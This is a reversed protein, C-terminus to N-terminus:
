ITLTKKLDLASINKNPNDELKNILTVLKEISTIFNLENNFFNLNITNDPYHRHHQLTRDYFGFGASSGLDLYFNKKYISSRILGIKYERLYFNFNKYKILSSFLIHRFIRHLLYFRRTPSFLLFKNSSVLNEIFEISDKIGKKKFYTFFDIMVSNADENNNSKFSKSIYEDSLIGGGVFIIKKQFLNKFFIKPYRYSRLLYYINSNEFMFKYKLKAIFKVDKNFILKEPFFIDQYQKHKSIGVPLFCKYRINNKQLTKLFAQVDEKEYDFVGNWLCIIFKYDKHIESVHFNNIAKRDILVLKSFNEEFKNTIKVLKFNWVHKCFYFFRIIRASGYQEDCIILAKTESDIMKKYNKALL